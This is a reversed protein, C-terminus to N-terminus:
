DNDQWTDTPKHAEQLVADKLKRIPTHLGNKRCHPAAIPHIQPHRRCPYVRDGM